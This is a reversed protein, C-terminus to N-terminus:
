RDRRIHLHELRHASGVRRAVKIQELRTAIGESARLPFYSNRSQACGASVLALGIWICNRVVAIYRLIVPYIITTM